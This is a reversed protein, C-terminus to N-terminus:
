LLLLIEQPSDTVQAYQVLTPWLLLCKPFGLRQALQLPSGEALDQGLSNGSFFDMGYFIRLIM